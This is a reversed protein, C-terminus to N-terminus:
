SIDNSLDRISVNFMNQAIQSMASDFQVFVQKETQYKYLEFIKERELNTLDDFMAPTHIIYPFSSDKLIALDFLIKAKGSIKNVAAADSWYTNFDSFREENWEKKDDPFEFMSLLNETNNEQLPNSKGTIINEFEAASLNPDSILTDWEEMQESIMAGIESLTNSISESLSKKHMGIDNRLRKLEEYRRLNEEAKQIEKIIFSYQEFADQTIFPSESNKNIEGRIKEEESDLYAIIVNNKKKQEDMEHKLSKAISRHFEEVQGLYDKNINPFINVLEDYNNTNTVSKNDINKTHSDLNENEIELRIKEKRLELLQYHERNIIQNHYLYSTDFAKSSNRIIAEAEQKLDMMELFCDSEEQDTFFELPSIYGYAQAKMFVDSKQKTRSYLENERNVPGNKGFLSLIEMDRTIQDNLDESVRNLKRSYGYSWGINRQNFRGIAGYANNEIEYKSALFDTFADINWIEGPSYQEDCVTVYQYENTTRSFYYSSDNFDFQFCIVNPYNTGPLAISPYYAGGFAFDIFVLILDREAIQSFDEATSPINNLGRDFTVSRRINKNM